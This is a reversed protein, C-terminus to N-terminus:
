PRRGAPLDGDAKRCRGEVLEKREHRFRGYHVGDKMVEMMVDQM